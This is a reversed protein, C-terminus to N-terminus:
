DGRQIKETEPTTSDEQIDISKLKKPPTKLWEGSYDGLIGVSFALNALADAWQTRNLVLQSRANGLTTLSTVVNQISTTGVKYQSLMGRYARDSYALLAESSPLSGEATKLAYYNIIVNTEVQAVTVDVKAIAEAIQARIAKQQNVYYFGSFIPCFFDIAITNNFTAPAKPKIFELRSASGNITFIPLSASISAKLAAEQQKVQSIAIGIDPKNSKAMEILLSVNEQIDIVPLKEPLQQTSLPTEPDLGLTILLEALSSKEAGEAQILNLKMQELVSQASLVDTLTAVGNNRMNTAAKLLVEADQVNQKSTKVLAQNALHSTYNNIVALLVNQIQLSHQWDAQVLTEFAIRERAARGGFDLLLYSLTVENFTTLATTKVTSSSSTQNPSTTTTSTATTTGTTTGTNTGIATTGAIVGGTSAVSFQEEQVNGTYNISPFEQSLSVRFNYAAARAAYWAARTSPNNYLAINFLQGLSMSQTLDAQTYPPKFKKEYTFRQPIPTARTPPAVGVSSPDQFFSCGSLLLGIICIFGSRM